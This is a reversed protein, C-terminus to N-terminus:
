RGAARQTFATRVRGKLMSISRSRKSAIAKAEMYAQLTQEATRRWDFRQVHERGRRQLEARLSQDRLIQRLQRALGDVDHPSVYLAADGAVESLASVNSVVVPVGAAMAELPPLGFGEYLSPYAFAAAGAYIAPLDADPVHGTLRVCQRIDLRDIERYLKEVRVGPKGVLVLGLDHFGDARLRAYAQLVAVLNKRVDLSAVSLIYHEPLNYRQRVDAIQSASVQRFRADVGLYVVRLQEPRAGLLEAADSATAWSDCLVIDTWSLACRRYRLFYTTIPEGAYMDSFREHILDHITMVKGGPFYKPPAFLPAHYVDVRAVTLWIPLLIQEVSFRFSGCPFKWYSFNHQKVVRTPSRRWLLIYRNEQDLAALAQLLCREYRQTGTIPHELNRIDIAIRM